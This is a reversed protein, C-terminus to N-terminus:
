TGTRADTEKACLLGRFCKGEGEWTVGVWSGFRGLSCVFLWSVGCAVLAGLVGAMAYELALVTVSQSVEGKPLVM